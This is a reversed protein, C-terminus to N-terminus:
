RTLTTGTTATEIDPVPNLGTYNLNWHDKTTALSV